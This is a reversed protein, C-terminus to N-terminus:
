NERTDAAANESMAWSPLLSRAVSSTTILWGSIVGRAFERRAAKSLGQCGPHHAGVHYVIRAWDPPRTVTGNEIEKYARGCLLGYALLTARAEVRIDVVRHLHLSTHRAYRSAQETSPSNLKIAEDFRRQWRAASLARREEHRIISAEAAITKVKIRLLEM